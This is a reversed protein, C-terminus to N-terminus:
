RTTTLGTYYANEVETPTRMELVGHLREHNYWSVWEGTASEVDSLAKLPGDHFVETHICEAKYVGNISEMLANDYADGVSGISPSIGEAALRDTYRISTYQSGADSHAILDGAVVPHGEADREWLALRLASMVLDTTMASAAYWGVIKQAFCDVVFAVYCFGSWTRVYTFDSVWKTNPAGAHFDRNLLDPARAAGKAPVTTRAAKGRRVGQLGLSRMARDVAGPTVAPMSRRLLATMKARGYLGEPARRRRGNIVRWALQRIADEVQADSITRASVRGSSQARYTRAAIQLGQEGLINCVSEVAFGKGCMQDIFAVIM